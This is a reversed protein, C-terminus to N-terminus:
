ILFILIFKNEINIIQFIFDIKIIVKVKTTHLATIELLLNFM